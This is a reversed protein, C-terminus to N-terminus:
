HARALPAASSPDPVPGKGASQRKMVRRFFEAIRGRSDYANAERWGNRAIQELDDRKSPRTWDQVIDPIEEPADYVLYHVGERLRTGPILEVMDGARDILMPKGSRWTDWHRSSPEGWGRPCVIIKCSSMLAQYQTADVKEGFPVCRGIGVKAVNTAVSERYGSPGTPTGIFGAGQTEATRTFCPSGWCLEYAWIDEPPFPALERREYAPTRYLVPDGPRWYWTAYPQRGWDVHNCVIQIVEPFAARYEAYRCMLPLIKGSDWRRTNGWDQWVYLMMADFRREFVSLDDQFVQIHINEDKLAEQHVLWPALSDQWQDGLHMGHVVVAIDM